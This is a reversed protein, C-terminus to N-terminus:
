NVFAGVTGREDGLDDDLCVQKSEMSRRSRKEHAAKGANQRPKKQCDKLYSPSVCPRYRTDFLKVGILDINSGPGLRIALDIQGSVIDLNEDTLLLEIKLEPFAARMKALIPVICQHGFAV